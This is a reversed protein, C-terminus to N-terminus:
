ESMAVLVSHPGRTHFPSVGGVAATLASTFQFTDRQSQSFAALIGAVHHLKKILSLAVEDSVNKSSSSLNPAVCRM